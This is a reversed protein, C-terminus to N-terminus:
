HRHQLLLDLAKPIDGNLSELLQTLWGNHNSFGMTMMTHIAYNVHPRHSYVTCDMRQASDNLRTSKDPNAAMSDGSSSSSSSSSSSCPGSSPPTSAKKEKGASTTSVELHDALIKSYNEYDLEGAVGSGGPKPSFPEKTKHEKQKDKSRSNSFKKEKPSLSPKTFDLSGLSSSSSSDHEILRAIADLPANAQKEEDEDHPIDVLTWTKETALPPKSPSASKAVDEAVDILDQDDDTLLSASSTSTQSDNEGDMEIEEAEADEAVAADTELSTGAGAVKAKTRGQGDSPKTEKTGVVEHNNKSEVVEGCEALPKAQNQATDSVTTSEVNQSEHTETAKNQKEEPACTEEKTMTPGSAPALNAASTSPTCDDTKHANADGHSSSSPSAATKHRIEFSLGLPDLLKSVNESAFLLKEQTPWALNVFPLFPLSIGPQQESQPQATPTKNAHKKSGKQPMRADTFREICEDSFPVGWVNTSSPMAGNGENSPLNSTTNLATNAAATAKAAAAAAAAAAANAMAVHDSGAAPAPFTATPDLAQMSNMYMNVMHKCRRNFDSVSRQSPKDKEEKPVREAATPVHAFTQKREGSSKSYRPPKSTEGCRRDEGHHKSSRQATRTTERKAAASAATKNSPVRAVEDLDQPSNATIRTGYLRLKEFMRSVTTQSRCLMESRPIRMMLHDKHRFKAECNMCIDFDHCTLCKYRHGIIDGDCVDCVVHPHLPLDKGAMADTAANQMPAGDAECQAVPQEEKDISTSVLPATKKGVVYLRAKANAMAQLFSGYDDDTTIRIEDGDDDIWYYRFGEVAKQLDQYRASCFAALEELNRCIRDGFLLYNADNEITIKLSILASM